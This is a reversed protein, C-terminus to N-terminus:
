EQEILIHDIDTAAIGLAQERYPTVPTHRFNEPLRPLRADHERPHARARDAPEVLPKRIREGIAQPRQLTEAKQRSTAARMVVALRLSPRRIMPEERGTFDRRANGDFIPRADMEFTTFNVPDDSGLATRSSVAHARNVTRHLFDRQGAFIELGGRYPPIFSCKLRQIRRRRKSMTFM